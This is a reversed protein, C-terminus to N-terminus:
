RSATAATEPQPLSQELQANEQRIATFRDTTRKLRHRLDDVALLAKNRAEDESQLAALLGLKYEEPIDKDALAPDGTIEETRTKIQDQAKQLLAVQKVYDVAALTVREDAMLLDVELQTLKSSFNTPVMTRVRVPVRGLGWSDVTDFTPPRPNIGQTVLDLPEALDQRALSDVTRMRFDPALTYSGQGAATVKFNGAFLSKDGEPQPVFIWVVQGPTLVFKNKNADEDAIQFSGTAPDPADNRVGNWVQGWGFLERDLDALKAERDAQAAALDKDLKEIDAEEQQIKELWATRYTAVGALFYLGAAWAVLLLGLAVKGSVHM